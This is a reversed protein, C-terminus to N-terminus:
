LIIFLFFSLVELAGQAALNLVHSFCRIHCEASGLYGDDLLTQVFADNNSANDTTLTFCRDKLGFEDIIEEFVQALYAGDHSKRVAVFDLVIWSLEFADNIWYATVAMFPATHQLGSTWIDTTFSFKSNVQCADDFSSFM